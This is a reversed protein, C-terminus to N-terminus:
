IMTHYLPLHLKFIHSEDARAVSRADRGTEDLGHLRAAPRSRVTTSPKCKLNCRVVIHQRSKGPRLAPPNLDKTEM